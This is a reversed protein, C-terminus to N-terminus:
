EWEITAPPKSSIDYTVRNVAAVENMIRTSIKALVPYPIRAWDATMADKSIVARLAVVYGYTRKDGQVGVSRNATLVAFAQWIDNYLGAKHIEEIYIEDIDRLIDLKDKTVEGIIRIALGPGPFPHRWVIDSPLGLEQAVMRVEDKFLAKLPEVLEFKLDEPLGGVNHHSKIVEAETTGSEIVDPYITGQVLYDVKGLKQAEEEFVGIFEKGIIKRKQEPDTIHAIKTLFRHEADVAVLNMDFDRGFTDIVQQPENKRMFGHDVFICTLQKGVARNVIAAAVASDIGGSLGCVLKGKDVQKRIAAITDQIFTAMTWNQSCHCIEVLFNTIIQKGYETHIVEPHFQVAYFGRKRDAMAAVPTHESAALVTFGVPPNSVIDKHSMWTNLTDNIFGKFLDQDDLISIKTKAYERQDGFRVRGGLQIAMLHMGYCIGLIPIHLDYIEPNIDAANDTNITAPGGSFIIGQPNKAKIQDIPTNWPVIESYVRCERVKRAILQSYQGGFDLILVTEM